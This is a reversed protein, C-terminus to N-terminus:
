FFLAHMRRRRDPWLSAARRLLTIARADSMVVLRDWLPYEEPPLVRVGHLEEYYRNEDFIAFPRERPKLRPLLRQSEFGAGFWAIRRQGAARSAKVFRRYRISLGDLDDPDRLSDCDLCLPTTLRRRRELGDALAADDGSVWRVSELGDPPEMEKVALFEVLTNWAAPLHDPEFDFRYKGIIADRRGPVKPADPPWLVGGEPTRIDFDACRAEMAKLIERSPARSMVLTVGPSWLRKARLLADPLYAAHNAQRLAAILEDWSRRADHVMSGGAVRYELVDADVRTGFRGEAGLRIWLDWDEIGQAPGVRRFGGMADFAERRIMVAPESHNAYLLHFYNYDGRPWYENREGFTRTHGYAYAPAADELGTRLARIGGKAIRDDADLFLLLEGDCAAAGVNRAAAVGEGERRITRVRPHRAVDEVVSRTEEDSGDDVVIVRADGDDNLVSDVCERLYMGHNRCPVVVDLAYNKM